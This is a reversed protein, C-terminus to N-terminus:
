VQITLNFWVAIDLININKRDHSQDDQQNCAILKMFRLVARDALRALSTPTFFTAPAELPDRILWNRISDTIKARSAPITATRRM